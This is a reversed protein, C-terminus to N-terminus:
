VCSLRYTSDVDSFVAKARVRDPPDLAALIRAAGPVCLADLEPRMFLRETAM